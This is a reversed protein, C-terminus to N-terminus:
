STLLTKLNDVNDQRHRVNKTEEAELRMFPPWFREVVRDFVEFPVRFKKRFEEYLLSGEERRLDPDMFHAWDKGKWGRRWRDVGQKHPYRARKAARDGSAAFGRGPADSLHGARGSPRSGEGGSEGRLRQAFLRPFPNL